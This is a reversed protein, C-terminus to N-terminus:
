PFFRYTNRPTHFAAIAQKAEINIEAEKGTAQAIVGSIGAAFIDELDAANIIASAGHQAFDTLSGRIV